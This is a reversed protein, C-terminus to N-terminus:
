CSGGNYTEITDSWYPYWAGEDGIYPLHPYVLSGSPQVPLADYTSACKDHYSEYIQKLIDRQAYSYYYGSYYYADNEDSINVVIYASSDTAKHHSDNHYNNVKGIQCNKAMVRFNEISNMQTDATLKDVYGAIPGSWFASTLAIPILALTFFYSKPVKAKRNKLYWIRRSYRVFIFISVIFLISSTFMWGLVPFIMALGSCWGSGNLVATLAFLGTWMLSYVILLISTLTPNGYTYAYEKNKM